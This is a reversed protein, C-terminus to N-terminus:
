SPDLSVKSHLLPMIRVVENSLELNKMFYEVELLHPIRDEMFCEVELLLPVGNVPDNVMVQM